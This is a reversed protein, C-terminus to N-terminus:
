EQYSTDGYSAYIKFKEQFYFLLVIGIIITTIAGITSSFQSEGNERFSVDMKFLDILNRATKFVGLKKRKQATTM